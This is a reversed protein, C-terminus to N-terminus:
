QDDIRRWLPAQAMGVRQDDLDHDHALAAHAPGGGRGRVVIAQPPDGLSRRPGRLESGAVRRWPPHPRRRHGRLLAIRDFADPPGRV